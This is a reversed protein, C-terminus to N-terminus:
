KTDIADLVWRARRAINADGADARARLNNALDSSNLRRALQCYRRFERCDRDDVVNLIAASLRQVQSSTLDANKLRTLLEEKIYGSRFFMADVELFTVAMEISSADGSKLGSIENDLGGPFALADYSQHFEKCADAWADDRKVSGRTIAENLERLRAAASEIQARLSM